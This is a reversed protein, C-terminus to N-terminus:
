HGDVTAYYDPLHRTLGRINGLGRMLRLRGKYHFHTGRSLGLAHFPWASVSLIAGGLIRRVAKPLFKLVSYRRGHRLRTAFAHAAASSMARQLLRTTTVRSLPIEEEVVADPTWVIKCGLAHARQFFDIDEFGFTLASEFRLGYKEPEILKRAFLTNNTPAETLITGKPGDIPKLTKWWSPPPAAYSRVVPGSVVDAAEDQAVEFLTALWGDCAQEDDDILAIWDYGRDLAVDVSRNRAFPIGRRVEQFYHIPWGDLGSLEDVVAQASGKECNDIVCIEAQVSRPLEQGALSRLCRALMNSRAATCVM